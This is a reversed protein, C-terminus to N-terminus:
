ESKQTCKTLKLYLQLRARCSSNCPSNRSLSNYRCISRLIYIICTKSCWQFKFVAHGTARTGAHTEHRVKERTTATAQRGRTYM